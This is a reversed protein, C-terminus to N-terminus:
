NDDEDYEENINHFEGDITHPANILHEEGKKTLHVVISAPSRKDEVNVTEPVRGYGYRVLDNAIKELQGMLAVHAVASYRVTRGEETLSVRTGDRVACMIKDENQLQRYLQVLEQIPDFGLQNLRKVSRQSGRHIKRPAQDAICTPQEISNNESM